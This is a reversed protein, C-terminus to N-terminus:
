IVIDAPDDIDLGALLERFRLAEALSGGCPWHTPLAYRARTHGPLM